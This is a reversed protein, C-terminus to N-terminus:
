HLGPPLGEVPSVQVTVVTPQSLTRAAIRLSITSGHKPRAITMTRFTEGTVTSTALKGTKRSAGVPRHVFDPVRGTLNAVLNGNADRVWAAVVEVETGPTTWSVVVQVGPNGLFSGSIKKSAVNVQSLPRVTKKPAIQCELEADISNFTPQLRRAQVAPSDNPNSKLPYYVGGTESAIRGLLDAADDGQGAPGLNLGVVYTRPGNRHADEYNGVDQRGDTLFIRADANPQAAASAAFAANYNTDTGTGNWGDDALRDLSDLMTTRAQFVPSPAFLAGAETGFEVAGVTRTASGPESLLLQMADSRISLPDNEAMSASDDIIAAVNDAPTCSRTRRLGLWEAVQRAAEETSAPYYHRHSHATHTGAQCAVDGHQCYSLLHAFAAPLGHKPPWLVGHRQRGPRAAVAGRAGSDFLPDGFLVVAGINPALSVLRPLAEHVVQAGQSYGVLVLKAGPCRAIRERVRNALNIVGREVSSRYESARDPNGVVSSWRLGIAPYPLGMSAVAGPDAQAALEEVFSGVTKGPDGNGREGSGRVAIVRAAEPCRSAASAPVVTEFASVLLCLACLAVIVFPSRFGPRRISMKEKRAVMALLCRTAHSFVRANM